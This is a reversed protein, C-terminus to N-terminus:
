SSFVLRLRPLSHLACAPAADLPPLRDPPVRVEVEELFLHKTHYERPITESM